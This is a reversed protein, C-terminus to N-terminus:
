LTHYNVLLSLYRSEGNIFMLIFFMDFEILLNIMDHNNKMMDDKAIMPLM